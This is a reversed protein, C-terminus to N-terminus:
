ERINTIENHNGSLTPSKESIAKCLDMVGDAMLDDASVGRNLNEYQKIVSHVLKINCLILKERANEDGAQAERLLQLEESLLEHKLAKAYQEATYEQIM